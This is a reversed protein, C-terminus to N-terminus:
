RVWIQNGEISVEYRPLARPPPGAIVSGDKADFFGKHCPCVLQNRDRNYHVPCTLHTCRQNYAVYRDPEIRVLICPDSETPYHFLKSEGVALEDLEAVAKPEFSELTALIKNKTLAGGTAVLVGLGLVKTFSRRSAKHEESQKIPYEKKWDPCDNRESKSM